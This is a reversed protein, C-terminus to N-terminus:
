MICNHIHALSNSIRIWVHIMITHNKLNLTFRYRHDPRNVTVSPEHKKCTMGVNPLMHYSCTRPIMCDCWCIKLQRGRQYIMSDVGLVMLKHSWRFEISSLLPSQFYDLVILPTHGLCAVVFLCFMIIFEFM